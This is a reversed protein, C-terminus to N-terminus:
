KKLFKWVSKWRNYWDVSGWVATSFPDEERSLGWYKSDSKSISAMAVSTLHFRLAPKIQLEGIALLASAGKMCLGVFCTCM